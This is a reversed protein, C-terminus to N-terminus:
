VSPRQNQDRGMGGQPLTHNGEINDRPRWPVPVMRRDLINDPIDTISGSHRVRTFASLAHPMNRRGHSWEMWVGRIITDVMDSSEVDDLRTTRM